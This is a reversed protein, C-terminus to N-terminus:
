DKLFNEFVIAESYRKLFNEFVVAESYRKLFNEFVVAESYRKTDEFTGQFRKKEIQEHDIKYVLFILNLILV